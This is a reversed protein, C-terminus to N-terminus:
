HRLCFHSHLYYKSFYLLISNNRAFLTFILVSIIRLIYSFIVPHRHLVVLFSNYTYITARCVCYARIHLSLSREAYSHRAIIDVRSCVVAFFSLYHFIVVEHGVKTLYQTLLDAAAAEEKSISPSQSALYRDLM